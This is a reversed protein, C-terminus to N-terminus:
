SCFEVVFTTSSACDHNGQVDDLSYAYVRGGCYNHVKRVYQTDVVPGNGRQNATVLGNACCYEQAQPDSPQYGLGGPAAMFTLEGRPSFCGARANTSPNSMSLDENRLRPFVGNSSLTDSIACNGFV